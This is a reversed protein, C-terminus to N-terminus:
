QRYKKEDLGVNPKFQLDEVLKLTEPIEDLNLGIYELKKSLELEKNEKKLITEGKSKKESYIKSHLDFFLLAKSAIKKFKNENKM